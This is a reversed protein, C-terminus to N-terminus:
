SLNLYQNFLYLFTPISVVLLIISPLLVFALSTEEEPPNNSTNMLNLYKKKVERGTKDDDHLEGIYFEKLLERNDDSPWTDEYSETADVGAANETLVEEGGPHDKLLSTIDYVKDHIVTWVSPNDGRSRKHQAVEALRYM